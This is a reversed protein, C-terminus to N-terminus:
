PQAETAADALPPATIGSLSAESDLLFQGSAVVRQGEALGGLVVTQGAAEAGVRVEVPRYRGEAEALMVLTRRGTRILAESPVLLASEAREAVLSVQAYMGPRLKGDRNGLEIRVRLTRSEANAEPLIAVVRGRRVEGPFAALHISAAAGTSLQGALAEPVAVDLWVSALSSIRALTQGTALTMGTRLDLTQIVGGAPATLTIVPQAEGRQVLRAILEPPMGLLRLRQRAAELLAADGSRQLALFETQAGAWDPVLVDALPTGAAVTDGPAHQYVKQVFGNARAQLVTVERENWALSGAAEVTAPLSGRQVTALRMGLRQTQQPDLKVAATREGGGEDAYKPVLQMDMFPSKGGRDFHQNPVMPDYWYLPKREVQSPAVPVAMKIAQRQALGYGAAVGALATGLAVASWRLTHKNM